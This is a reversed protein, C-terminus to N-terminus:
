NAHRLSVVTTSTSSKAQDQPVAETAYLHNSLLYDASQYYSVADLLLGDDTPCETQRQKPDVDYMQSKKKPLLIALKGQEFLAVKQYNGMLARGEGPLFVDRGFFKSRYSFDLLGLLTPAVDMQGCLKDVVAPKIIKPAYIFLPIHYRYVPLETKGASRACHDAVILFITNDFWPKDRAKRLFEGIAYDTYKVAGKRSFGSPIDIKQPYTYPRHNSVTLALYCFPKGAAFSQDCEKLVHNYLDDDCVGWITRFTIEDGSFDLQDVTDFGNNRFFYNMNDFYGFGAYIFKTEYGRQRLLGGISFLNENNPRKVVSRGPTPPLSLTIAELGRDTRTGTAYFNRFFLSQTTLADLNPTVHSRSGFARMFQASLSEITVIVINYRKEPRPSTIERTLDNSSEPGVFRANETKVLEKMRGFVARDDKTIYFHNYDLTNQRFAAFLSYLGDMALENTYHNRTVNSLSSDVFLLSLLPVALCALGSLLRQRSPSTAEFVGLFLKRTLLFIPVTFVLLGSLLVPLPYSEQINGVVEHTYILYDVAVFNYRVDFEDWFLWEAVVDFLMAYILLFYLGLALYRFGKWRFLRDPAIVLFVVVPIAGYFFAALDYFLGVAYMKAIAWMSHDASSFARIFLATRLLFMLTLFVAGVVFLIGFRTRIKPFGIRM